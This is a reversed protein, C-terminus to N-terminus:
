SVAALLIQLQAAALCVVHEVIPGYLRYFLAVREQCPEARHYFALQGLGYQSYVVKGFHARGM